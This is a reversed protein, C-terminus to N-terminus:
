PATAARARLALLAEGFNGLVVHHEGGVRQEPAIGVLQHLVTVVQQDEVLRLRDLIGLALAGFCHALDVRSMAQAQGARRQFVVEAFKPALEIEQKGAKEAGALLEGAVPPRRDLLLAVSARRLRSARRM